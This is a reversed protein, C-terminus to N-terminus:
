RAAEATLLIEYRNLAEATEDKQQRAVVVQDFLPMAELNSVFDALNITSPSAAELTASGNAATYEFRDIRVNVLLAREVAQLVASVPEGKHAILTNLQRAQDRLTELDAVAMAEEGMAAKQRAMAQRLDANEQELLFGQVVAAILGVVAAALLTPLLIQLAKRLQLVPQQFNLANM